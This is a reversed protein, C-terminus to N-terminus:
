IGQHWTQITLLCSLFLYQTTEEENKCLPRCSPGIIGRQKLDNILPLKNHALIWYFINDKQFPMERGYIKGTKPNQLQNKNTSYDNTDKTSQTSTMNLRSEQKMKVLSTLMFADLRQPVSLTVRTGQHPTAHTYTNGVRTKRKLKRGLQFNMCLNIEKIKQHPNNMPQTKVKLYPSPWLSEIRYTLTNGM